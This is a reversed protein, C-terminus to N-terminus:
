CQLVAVKNSNKAIYYPCMSLLFKIPKLLYKLNKFIRQPYFTNVFLAYKPIISPYSYFPTHSLKTSRSTRSTSTAPEFGTVGVVYSRFNHYWLYQLKREKEIDSFGQPILAQPVIASFILKMTDFNVVCFDFHSSELRGKKM